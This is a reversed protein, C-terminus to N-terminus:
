ERYSIDASGAVEKRPEIKCFIGRTDLSKGTETFAALATLGLGRRRDGPDHRAEAM